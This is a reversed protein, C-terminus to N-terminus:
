NKLIGYKLKRLSLFRMNWRGFAKLLAMKIYLCNKTKQVGTRQSFLHWTYESTINKTVAFIEHFWIKFVALVPDLIVGIIFIKNKERFGIFELHYSNIATKGCRGFNDVKICKYWVTFTLSTWTWTLHFINEVSFCLADAFFIRSIVKWWFFIQM